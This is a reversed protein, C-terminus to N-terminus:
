RFIRRPLGLFRLHLLEHKLPLCSFSILNRFIESSEKGSFLYFNRDLSPVMLKHSLLASCSITLSLYYKNKM